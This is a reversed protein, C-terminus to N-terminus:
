NSVDLFVELVIPERLAAPLCQAAQLNSTIVEGDVLAHCLMDHLVWAAAAFLWSGYHCVYKICPLWNVENWQCGHHPAHM